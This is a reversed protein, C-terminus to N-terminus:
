ELAPNFTGGWTNNQELNENEDLVTQQLPFFYFSEEVVFTNEANPNYPVRQKVYRFNDPTLEFNAAKEKAINIPMDTGDPNIAISELGYKQLRSLIMMNRTRRLDWFRHGEFCFEINREDLIIQRLQERTPSAPLGYNGDGAEIGARKRIEKLMEVTVDLHGTENAAEAYIMMLEAFRMKICDVSYQDTIDPTLSLDLAKRVYFGSMVDNKTTTAGGSNPNTGYADADDALGLATYQRYGAPMGAVPLAQGSCLVSSYFRPDRNKWFNQMLDNESSVYYKGGPDNFKKGDAMPFAKVMDWTPTRQIQGTSLSQPRLYWDWSGTKNPYENIVAFLVETGGEKLFIDDYNSTLASGHDKAWDYAEKAANYADSWYLNTYPSKPNFQPSAKYLLVKAKFAKAYTKDIRGYDNSSAPIKDPLGNNIADNLDQIIFDYCEATTNRKVYLDDKDKDQPVKIYPVGGHYIVMEFYVYARMFLVQAILSQKVNGSLDGQDLSQIAENIKRIVTYNWKKYGSGSITIVNAYFPMGTLQESNQDAGTDWNTFVTAYLNTVYATALVEDNWVKNADYDSLNEIDLTDCSLLFSVLFCNIIIFFKKM